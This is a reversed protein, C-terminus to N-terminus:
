IEAHAGRTRTFRAHVLSVHVGPGALPVGAHGPFALKLGGTWTPSISNRSRSLSASGSFPAGPSLTATQLHSDFRFAGPEVVGTVERDIWLEGRRERLSAAFVTRAKPSNKNVQFFLRRGHAFSIGRLRAGPESPGFAEGYSSSCPGHGSNVLLDPVQAVRSVKARTYNEEGNFEVVGEYTGPEYTWTGGFCRPHVTKERGSPRRVVDVKGIPGLDARIVDATVTAPARYVASAGGRGAIFAISGKPDGGEAYAVASITYGHSGQLSFGTAVVEAEIETGAAVTTAPFTGLLLSVVGLCIAQRRGM